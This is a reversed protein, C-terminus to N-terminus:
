VHSEERAARSLRLTARWRSRAESAISAGIFAGLQWRFQFLFLELFLGLLWLAKFFPGEFFAV